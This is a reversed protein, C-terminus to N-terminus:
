SVPPLSAESTDLGALVTRASQYRGQLGSKPGRSVEKCFALLKIQSRSPWSEASIGLPEAAEQLQVVLEGFAAATPISVSEVLELMLKSHISDNEDKTTNSGSGLIHTVIPAVLHQINFDQLLEMGDSVASSAALFAQASIGEQYSAILQLCYVVRDQHGKSLEQYIEKYIRQLAEQLQLIISVIGKLETTVLM